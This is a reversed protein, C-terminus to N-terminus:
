IYKQSSSLVISSSFFLRVGHSKFPVFLLNKINENESMQFWACESRWAWIHGSNAIGRRSTPGINPHKMKGSKKLKSHPSKEWACIDYFRWLFFKPDNLPWKVGGGSGRKEPKCYFISNKLCERFEDYSIDISASNWASKLFTYTSLTKILKPRSIVNQLRFHARKESIKFFPGM